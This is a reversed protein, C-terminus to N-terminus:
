GFDLAAQVGELLPESARAAAGSGTRRLRGLAEAIGDGRRQAVHAIAKPVSAARDAATRDLEPVVRGFFSRFQAVVGQPAEGILDLAAWQGRQRDSGTHSQEDAQGCVTMM